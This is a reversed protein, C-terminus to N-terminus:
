IWKKPELLRRAQAIKQWQGGSLEAQWKEDPDKHQEYLDGTITDLSIFDLVNHAKAAAKIIEPNSMASINGIGINEAVSLFPAKAIDQFMVSM